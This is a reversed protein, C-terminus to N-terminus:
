GKYIEERCVPQAILMMPSDGSYIEKAADCQGILTPNCFHALKVVLRGSMYHISKVVSPSVM